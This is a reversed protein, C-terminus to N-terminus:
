KIAKALLHWGFRRVLPRPIANFTGVFLFNYFFGKLGRHLRTKVPFREVIIQTKKFPTLLAKFEGLTHTHFAPADEHELKVCMIKSLLYLWSRKNYLQLIAEGGPKLVRHIERMMKQVDGTYPLVGHAYVTDFTGAGFELQEGDM